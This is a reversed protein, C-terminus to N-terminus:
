RIGEVIDKLTQISLTHFSTGKPKNFHISSDTIDTIEFFVGSAMEVEVKNGEEALPRTIESFAEEFSKSLGSELTSALYNEKARKVIEYFIGKYKTFILSDSSSVEPRLGVMFDEYSYNQHF